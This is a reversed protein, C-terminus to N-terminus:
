PEAQQKLRKKEYMLKDAQVLLDEVSCREGPSYFAVGTSLSIRFDRGARANHSELTEELRSEVFDTGAIDSELMFVVFEDGGIRAIIDVKRFTERLIDATERLVEDGVKHGHTDNIWKLNDLDASLLHMGKKMREAVKMQQEAMTMFGRRNYLGTLEDTLSLILLQEEMKKRETIQKSIVTVATVIGNQDKLPSLTRLFYRGDRLSKHEHQVSEGTEFVMNIQDTFDRIEDPSHLDRYSRGIYEDGSFGLRRAHEQNMFLYRFERDMLYISDETSEVLSRYREESKHLSDEAQELDKMHSLLPRFLLVYLVPLAFLTLLFADLFIEDVLSLPRVYSILLMVASEALFISIGVIFFLSILSRFLGKRQRVPRRRGEEQDRGETGVGINPIGANM